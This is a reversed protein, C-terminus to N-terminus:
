KQYTLLSSLILMIFLELKISLFPTKYNKKNDYIFFLFCHSFKNDFFCQHSVLYHLLNYFKIYLVEEFSHM